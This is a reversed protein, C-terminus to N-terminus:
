QCIQSSRTAPTDTLDVSLSSLPMKKKNKNMKNSRAPSIVKDIHNTPNKPVLKLHNM